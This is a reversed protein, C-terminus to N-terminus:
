ARGGTRQGAPESSFLEDHLAAAISQMKLRGAITPRRKPVTARFMLMASLYIGSCEYCDGTGLRFRAIAAKSPKGRSATGRMWGKKTGHRGIRVSQDAACTLLRGASGRQKFQKTGGASLKPRAVDSKRTKRILQWRAVTKQVSWNGIAGNISAAKTM